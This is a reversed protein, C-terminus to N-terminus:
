EPQQRKYLITAKLTVILSVEMDLTLFEETVEKVEFISNQSNGSGTLVLKNGNVTYKTGNVETDTFTLTEIDLNTNLLQNTLSVLQDLTTKPLKTGDAATAEQFVWTGLLKAKLEDNPTIDDEGDDTGDEGDDTGDKEDDSNDIPVVIDDEEPDNDGCSAFGLGLLGLALVAFIQLLHKRSM